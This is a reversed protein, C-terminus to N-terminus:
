GTVRGCRCRSGSSRARARRAGRRWGAATCGPTRWASPCAWGPVAPRGPGPRTPGGSGTSSWSRRARAQLGVGHDRVTVAVAGDRARWRTGGGAPGRRARDRQRDPQAPDAGGPARGGRRDGAHDPVDVECGCAPGSPSRRLRDVVRQVVPVLDTPEADLVAFGADFRSIELLDTLLGEFRDLEAQLLEASRAVGPRLRRARRLAPRGGDAGHDAPYAARALRRLHVAAAAPVHGGAAPDAAAPEGGDPQLLRRAAALDDEGRSRWGSTSCAPPCASRPAPPSGSRTCWWGPSWRPSWRWCCCWPSVPPSSPTAHGPQGHEVEDDLPFFYYLESRGWGHDTVPPRLGPVAEAATASTRPARDPQGALRRRAAQALETPSRRACPREQPCTPLPGPTASRQGRIAIVVGGGQQATPWTASARRDRHQALSPDVRQSSAQLQQAAYDGGRDQEQQRREPRATWCGTPSRSRSWSGFAGVLPAPPRGPHDDRRAGAAFAALDAPPRGAIAGPRRGRCGGRGGRRGAVPSRVATPPDRRDPGTGAKYGVGRVTLIM